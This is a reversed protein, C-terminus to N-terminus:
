WSPFLGKDQMQTCSPKQPELELGLWLDPKFNSDSGCGVGEAAQEELVVEAKGESDM